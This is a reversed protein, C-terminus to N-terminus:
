RITPADAHRHRADASRKLCRRDRDSQEVFEFLEQRTPQGATKEIKM